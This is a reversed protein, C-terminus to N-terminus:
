RTLELGRSQQKDQEQTKVFEKVEQTISKISKSIQKNSNESKEFIVFEAIAIKHEQTFSKDLTKNDLIKDLNNSLEMAKAHDRESIEMIKNLETSDPVEGREIIHSTINNKVMFDLHSKEQSVSQMVQSVQAQIQGYKEEGMKIAQWGQINDTTLYCEAQVRASQKAAVHLDLLEKVTECTGRRWLAVKERELEFKVTKSISKATYKDLDDKFKVAYEKACHSINTIEKLQDGTPSKEQELTVKKYESEFVIEQVKVPAMDKVLEISVEKDKTTEIESKINDIRDINETHRRLDSGISHSLELALQRKKDKIIGLLKSEGRLEGLYERDNNLINEAKDLGEERVLRNWKYFTDEQQQSYVRSLQSELGKNENEIQETLSRLESIRDLTKGISINLGYYDVEISKKERTELQEHTIDKTIEQTIDKTIEKVAENKIENMVRSNEPLWSLEQKIESIKNELNVVTNEKSHKDLLEQSLQKKEQDQEYSELKNALTIGLGLAKKRASDKLIGFFNKGQPEGLIRFDERIQLLASDLTLDQKLSQWKELVSLSDKYTKGIYNSLLEEKYSTISIQEQAALVELKKEKLEVELYQKQSLSDDLKNSLDKALAIKEQGKLEGLNVYSELNSIEEGSLFKNKAKTKFERVDKQLEGYILNLEKEKFLYKNQSIAFAAEQKISDGIDQGKNKLVHIGEAYFRYISQVSYEGLSTDKSRELRSKDFSTFLKQYERELLKKNENGLTVSEVKAHKAVISKSIGAQTLFTSHKELDQHIETALEKRAEIYKLFEQYEPHENFALNNKRIDSAIECYKDAAEQKIGKYLRVRNFYEKRESTVEYDDILGKSKYGREFIRGLENLDKFTEKDVFIQLELKHRSAAVYFSNHNMYKEALLYTKNVTLGQSKHITTAYGYTFNNYHATDITVKRNEGIIKFVICGQLDKNSASVKEVTARTGNYVGLSVDNKTFIVQEGCAISSVGESTKYKAGTIEILEGAQILHTRIEQNLSSVATRTYALVINEKNGQIFNNVYSQVLNNKAQPKTDLFKILQKKEYYLLAEKVKGKAISLTADRQWEEKQRWIQDLEFAGAKKVIAKFGGGVGIAQLQDPDGVVILKGGVENIKNALFSLDTIDAMSAEDIIFVSKSNLHKQGDSSQLFINWFALTRFIGIECSRSLNNTAIGSVAGGLVKYGAEEYISAVEKMLLSKGTGARGVLLSMSEAKTLHMVADQQKQSLDSSLSSIEVKHSRNNRLENVSRWLTKEVVDRELTTYLMEKNVSLETVVQLRAHSLVKSFVSEFHKTDTFSQSRELINFIETAIEAKTFINYRSAVLDIIIEPNEIVRKANEERIEKNLQIRDTYTNVRNSVGEHVTATLDIGQDKYSRHDIKLDLGQQKFYQNVNNAWMERVNLIFGKTDWDPNKMGFKDGDIQRTTLLIHAHPNDEEWHINVDAVMGKDVFCEKVYKRLIETNQEQDLEKPLALEVERAFRSDKRKELLEIHNWLDQRNEMWKPAHEPLLIASFVVNAKNSYDFEREVILGTEKDLFQGVLHSASRYAAAAIISRGEGRGIYNSTLHYIAM